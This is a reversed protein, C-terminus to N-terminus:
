HARLGAIVGAVIPNLLAAVGYRASWYDIPALVGGTLRSWGWDMLMAVVVAGVALGVAVGRRGPGAPMGLTRGIGILAVAILWGTFGSVALLGPGLDLQLLLCLGVAGLAAVAAAGAFTRAPTRALVPPIPAAVLFRDGPPRALRVGDDGARVRDGGTRSREAPASPDIEPRESMDLM